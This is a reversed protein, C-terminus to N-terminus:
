SHGAFDAALHHSFQDLLALFHDCLILAL